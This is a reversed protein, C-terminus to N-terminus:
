AILGAEKDGAQFFVNDSLTGRVRISPQFRVIRGELADVGTEQAIAASSALAAV